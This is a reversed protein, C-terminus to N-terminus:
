PVTGEQITKLLPTRGVASQFCVSKTRRAINPPLLCASAQSTIRLPHCHIIISAFTL